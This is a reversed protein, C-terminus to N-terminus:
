EYVVDLQLGALPPLERSAGAARHLVGRALANVCRQTQLRGLRAAHMHIAACGDALNSVVLVVEPAVALRSGLAPAADARCHATKRHIRHIVRVATTLALRPLAIWMRYRGPALIGLTQFRAVVLAGIVHNQLTTLVLYTSIGRENFFPGNTSRCRAFFTCTAEAFFSLFGMLVQDRREMTMGSITPSVIATCLPRWCMGTSMVSFMTPCLNPSNAGVRVKLACEPSLFTDAASYPMSVLATNLYARIEGCFHRSTTSVIRPLDAVSATLVKFNM